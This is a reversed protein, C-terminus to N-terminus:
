GCGGCVLGADFQKLKGDAFLQLAAGVTPADGSHYVAIGTSAFGQLPRMGMGGAILATVGNEALLNVPTMCNGHEHEVNDLTRTETVEGNDLTVLTYHPCHGFHASVPADLCQTTESPIALITPM